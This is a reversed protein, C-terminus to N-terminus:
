NGDPSFAIAVVSNEEHVWRLLTGSAVEWVAVDGRRTGAALLKGDPSLTVDGVVTEFTRVLAGTAQDWLKADDSLYAGMGPSTLLQQGGGCFQVLGVSGLHARWTRLRQGTATDWLVVTGDAAGTALRKGDPAWSLAWTPLQHGHFTNRESGDT